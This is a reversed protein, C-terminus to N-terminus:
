SSASARRARCTAPTRVVGTCPNPGPETLASHDQRWRDVCGVDHAAVDDGIETLVDQTVDLANWASLSLRVDNQHAKLHAMALCELAKVATM